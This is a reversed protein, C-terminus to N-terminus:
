SAAPAEAAPQKAAGKSAKKAAKEAEKKEKEADLAEQKAKEALYEDVCKQDYKLFDKGGFYPRLVEPITVGEPTQNNELICCM